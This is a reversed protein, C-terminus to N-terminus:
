NEKFRETLETWSMCSSSSFDIGLYRLNNYCCAVFPKNFIFEISFSSGKSGGGDLHMLIIFIILEQKSFNGNEVTDRRM